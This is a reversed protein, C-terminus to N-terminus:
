GLFCGLVRSSMKLRAAVTDGISDRASCYGLVLRSTVIGHAFTSSLTPATATELIV